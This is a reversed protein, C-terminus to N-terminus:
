PARRQRRGGTFESPDEVFRDRCEEGCFHYIVGGQLKKPTNRQVKVGDGCVACESTKESM